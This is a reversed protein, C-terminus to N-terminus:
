EVTVRPKRPLRDGAPAFGARGVEVFVVGLEPVVPPASGETDRGSPVLAGRPRETGSGHTPRRTRGRGCGSRLCSPPRSGTWGRGTRERDATGWTVKWTASGNVTTRGNKGTSGSRRRRVAWSIGGCSSRRRSLD